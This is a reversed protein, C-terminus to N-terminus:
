IQLNVEMVYNLGLSRFIFNPSLYHDQIESLSMRLSPFNALRAEIGPDDIREPHLQLDIYKDIGMRKVREIDGARPGYGIRNLLHIIRQDENLSSSAKSKTDAGVPVLASLTLAAAVAVALVSSAVGSSAFRKTLSSTKPKM